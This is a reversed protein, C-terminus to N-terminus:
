YYLIIEWEGPLNIDCLLECTKITTHLKNPATFKIELNLPFVIDEYLLRSESSSASEIGSSLTLRFNDPLRTLTKGENLFTFTLSEEESGLYVFRAREIGYKRLTTHKALLENEGIYVDSNWYGSKVEVGNSIKKFYKGYGQKMGRKWHGEYADGNEYTYKGEGNPYGKRWEGTYTEKGTATGHGHAKGKKCEGTYEGKLKIVFVKCNNQASLTFSILIAFFLSVLNKM